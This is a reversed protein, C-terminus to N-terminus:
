PAFRKSKKIYDQVAKFIRTNNQVSLERDGFLLLDTSINQIATTILNSITNLLDNRIVNYRPCVLLFHENNEVDGCACNPSLVLNRKFLHQNLSSCETRLRTHLIQDLRVGSYYYEPITPTANTLQQKFATLTNVSKISAPLNNWAHVTSPLFSDAFTRTNAHVSLYNESNRFSYASNDGM